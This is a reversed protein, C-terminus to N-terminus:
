QRELKLKLFHTSCSICPDYARILKELELKIQRENMNLIGPLFLKVDEDINHLNQSTPTIINCAKIKGTASLTYDHILVGRPVETASVGRGAKLKIQKPKENKIKLNLLIKLARNYFEFIEIAQAFNNAFPSFSPFSYRSAKVFQKAESSLKDYHLNLRSLASTMYSQGLFLAEKATTGKEVYENIKRHYDKINFEKNNLMATLKDDFFISNSSRSLALHECKREFEPAKLSGFLKVTSVVLPKLKKLEAVLQDLESQSPFKTFGGVIAKVAHIERGGIVREIRNFGIKLKLATRLLDKDHETFELASSVGYYDPLALFYLHLLHSEIINGILLLERLAETQKSVKIGLAKEIARLAGIIHSQSCVGCIRSSIYHAEEAKRGILIGEFYRAGEVVRLEVVEVRKGKVKVYLNAHGEIKAIHELEIEKSM